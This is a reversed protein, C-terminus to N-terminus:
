KLEDLPGDASQEPREVIVVRRKGAKTTPIDPVVEISLKVGPLYKRAFSQTLEHVISPLPQDSGLPVLKLTIAGDVHQVAQFQRTHHALRTILISFIIGDVPNGGGDRLTESVRGEIPGIRPLWRGCACRGPTRATALDGTVYRIFPSALNHLDTIVVEGVEGPHAARAIGGPERVLVEVILNEMSTHLGDHAPCESAMLMFERCGYTEYIAPGFAAELAERDHAWLREAGVVVPITDWDRAGTRRVYRALAAAAQSYAVIVQPRFSRIKDVALALTADGRPTCDIYLDRRLVRDVDLKLKEARNKPVQAGFGWFHLARLGPQYGAWGYGRWRTADRWLRSEAGYAVLMPEGTSGGTTKRVVVGPGSTAIRSEASVRAEARELLPLRALDEPTRLDEPSVGAADFRAKYFPTRHYANRALRRLFGSQIARLEDLNSWQTRELYQLVEITPRGRLREWTPFLAKGLLRGYLDDPPVKASPVPAPAPPLDEILHARSGIDELAGRRM